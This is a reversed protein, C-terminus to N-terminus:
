TVRESVRAPRWGKQHRLLHSRGGTGPSGWNGPNGERCATSVVGISRILHKDTPLLARRRRTEERDARDEGNTLRTSTWSKVKSAQELKVRMVAQLTARGGNTSKTALSWGLRNGSQVARWSGHNGVVVHTPGEGVPFGRRQPASVFVRYTYAPTDFLQYQEPEDATAPQPKKKYRLAIFRCAKAWGEPQYSFQCQADAHTGAPSKWVAAQLAEVLRATKRASIIFQVGRGQYASVADWCYFGSDARAFIKEVGAPLAELVM